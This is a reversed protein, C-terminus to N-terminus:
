HSYEFALCPRKQPLSIKFLNNGAVSLSLPCSASGPGVEAARTSSKIKFAMEFM